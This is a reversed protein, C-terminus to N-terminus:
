VRLLWTKGNGGTLIGSDDRCGVNKSFKKRENEKGKRNSSYGKPQEKWSTIKDSVLGHTNNWEDIKSVYMRKICVGYCNFCWVKKDEM